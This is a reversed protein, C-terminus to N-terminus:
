KEEYRAREANLATWHGPGFIAQKLEGNGTVYGAVIVPHKYPWETHKICIMNIGLFKFREGIAIPSTLYKSTQQKKHWFM